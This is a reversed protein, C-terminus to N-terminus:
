NDYKARSKKNAFAKKKKVNESLRILWIFGLSCKCDNVSVICLPVRGNERRERVCLRILAPAAVVRNSSCRDGNSYSGWRMELM